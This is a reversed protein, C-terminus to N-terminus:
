TLGAGTGLDINLSSGSGAQTVLDQALAGVPWLLCFLTAIFSLRLARHLEERTPIAFVAPLRTM